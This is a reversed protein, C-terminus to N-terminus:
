KKILLFSIRSFFKLIKRSIIRNNFNMLYKERLKNYIYSSIIKFNRDYDKIILNSLIEFQTVNFEKFNIFNKLENLIKIGNPSSFLFTKRYKEILNYNEKIDFNELNVQNMDCFYRIEDIKLPRFDLKM